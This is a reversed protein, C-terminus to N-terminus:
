RLLDEARDIAERQLEQFGLIEGFRDEELQARYAQRLRDVTDSLGAELDCEGDAVAIQIEQALLSQRDVSSGAHLEAVATRADDPTPYDFGRGQMCSRWRDHVAEYRDDARMRNGAEGGLNNTVHDLYLWTELDGYLEIRVDSLCGGANVSVTSGDSLEAVVRQDDRGFLAVQFEQQREPPLSQVYVTNPDQPGGDSHETDGSPPPLESIGYGVVRRADLDVGSPRAERVFDELPPAARQGIFRPVSM